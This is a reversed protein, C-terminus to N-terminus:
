SPDKGGRRAAGAGASRRRPSETIKVISGKQKGAQATRTKWAAYEGDWWQRCELRSHGPWGEEHMWSIVEDETLRGADVEACLVDFEHRRITM